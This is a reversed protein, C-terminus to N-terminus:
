LVDRRRKTESGIKYKQEGPYGADEQNRWAMTDNPNLLRAKPMDDFPLSVDIPSRGIQTPRIQEPYTDDSPQEYYSRNTNRSSSYQPANQIEEQNARQAFRAGSGGQLDRELNEVPEISQELFPNTQNRNFRSSPVFDSSGFDGESRESEDLDEETNESAEEGEDSPTEDLNIELNEPMQIESQEETIESKDDEEM